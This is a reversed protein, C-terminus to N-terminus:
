GRRKENIETMFQVYHNYRQQSITGEEVQAKVACKPEKLHLCSTFKCNEMHPLFERFYFRLNERQIEDIDLNGFGPTDAIWSDQDVSVLETHRTTHKGRQIRESVEGTKLQLGPKIANLLSSKGVGSPGSFVSVKGKLKNRLDDIGRNGKASTFIMPYGTPEYIEQIENQTIGKETELDGKNICLVVELGLDEALVIIKDMLNLSPSPNKVSVVIVVQDVNAIEPRKLQNKRSLVRELTGTKEEADLHSVQVWDGVLPKVKDKRLIGRGKCEYLGDELSVYYFGSIGKIIRGEKM